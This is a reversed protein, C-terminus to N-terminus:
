RTNTISKLFDEPSRLKKTPYHIDDYVDSWNEARIKIIFIYFVSCVLCKKRRKQETKEVISLFKVQDLILMQLSFENNSHRAYNLRQIPRQLMTVYEIINKLPMKKGTFHFM